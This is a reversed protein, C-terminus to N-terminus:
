PIQIQIKFRPDQIKSKVSHIEKYLRPFLWKRRRNGKISSTKKCNCSKCVSAGSALLFDQSDVVNVELENALLIVQVHPHLKHQQSDSFVESTGGALRVKKM